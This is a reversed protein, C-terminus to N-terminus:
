TAYIQAGVNTSRWVGNILTSPVKQIAPATIATTSATASYVQDRVLEACITYDSTNQAGTPPPMTLTHTSSDVLWFGSETSPIAKGVMEVLVNPRVRYDGRLEADATLWYMNRNIDAQIKQQAEYFSDAPADNYYKTITPSIPASGPSTFLQYEQATSVLNGTTPNIGSMTRNAVIGGDPTITGIVPKFSRITDWIGPTNYSWFQPINRANARDFILKPNVFYLDTNDVYFRFGIENALQNLFKFDSVNQLRYDIAATYPHVVARFGHKVAIASAIGSPTIHKWAYNVTSQMVQSTGTITYQVCTTILGNYSTDAGTRVVKYSAIYGLFQYLYNPSMGYNITIPTQEPIYNWALRTGKTGQVSGQGIYLVDLLAIPHANTRQIIDVKPAYQKLPTTNVVVGFYPLAAVKSAM